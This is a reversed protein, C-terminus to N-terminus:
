TLKILIQLKEPLSRALRYRFGEVLFSWECLVEFSDRVSEYLGCLENRLEYQQLAFIGGGLDGKIEKEKARHM